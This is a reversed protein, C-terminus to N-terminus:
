RTVKCGPVFQLFSKVGAPTVRTHQVGLETLRTLNRLPTLGMDTINNSGDEKERCVWLSELESLGAVHKLGEDTFHNFQLSLGTLEPFTAFVALSKDTIQSTSLHIYRLQKLGALHAVGADTVNVADWMFLYELRRLRSLHRMSSDSAQTGSLLLVRLNSFGPLHQLADDSPNHNEKRQGSDESYNLSVQVVDHFFDIGLQERLWDPVWSRARPDFDKHSFKGSPFQFDYRLWGGYERIAAISREQLRTRHVHIGLWISLATFVLLLTRLRFRVLIPWKFLNM